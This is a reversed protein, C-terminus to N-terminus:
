SKLHFLLLGEKKEMKGEPFKGWLRILAEPDEQMLIFTAEGEIKLGEIDDPLLYTTLGQKNETAEIFMLTQAPMPLGDPWPVAVGPKNVIVYKDEEPPLSNLYEGMLGLDHSFAARVESRNAWQNFYKDFQLLTLALLFLLSALLLVEKNRINSSFIQYLWSGGLAAFIYVVPIVGIVRLAHPIGEFTLVGPLLMIFFWAILLCPPILRSLSKQKRARLLEKISLLFGILFLTGIPWLLQPLGAFNHRWNSDGSFNFMALHRGLSELLAKSPSEQAFVSVGAARSIFAEQHSLFYLGLPLAIIFAVAGFYLLFLLYKRQLGERRYSFWYPFFLFPLILVALRFPIYTYFGLGFFLGSLIFDRLTKTRFGKLLFYFSFTLILPLLIARFGIRSFNLHWFSIALFFSALLAVARKSTLGRFSFHKLTSGQFMELTLLYLGLITLLGIIASVLRLSWVSPGFIFFSMAVLNHFLGERGNNEPYFVKGPSFLADNANIAEDPYLGPPIANLQGLRFFGALALIILLILFLSSQRNVTLSQYNKLDM